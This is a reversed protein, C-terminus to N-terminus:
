MVFSSRSLHRREAASRTTAHEERRRACPTPWAPCPPFRPATGAMGHMGGSGCRAERQRLINQLLHEVLGVRILVAADPSDSSANAAAAASQSRASHPPTEACKAARRASSTKFSQRRAHNNSALRRLNCGKSYRMRRTCPKHRKPYTYVTPSPARSIPLRSGHPPPQHICPTQPRM